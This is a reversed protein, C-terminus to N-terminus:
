LFANELQQSDVLQRKKCAPMKKIAIERRLASSRDGFRELYVLRVPRRGKTYGAGNRTSNHERLRRTMDTTIGTYLTRDRCLVIYVYWTQDSPRTTNVSPM